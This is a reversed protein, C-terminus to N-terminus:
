ASEDIIIVTSRYLGGTPRRSDFELDGPLAVHSAAARAMDGRVKRAVRAIGVISDFWSELPHFFRRSLYIILESARIFVYYSSCSPPSRSGTRCKPPLQLVRSSVRLFPPGRDHITGENDAPIIKRSAFTSHSLASIRRNVEAVRPM